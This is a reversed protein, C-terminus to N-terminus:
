VGFRLTSRIAVDLLMCTNRLSAYKLLILLVKRFARKAESTRHGGAGLGAYQQCDTTAADELPQLVVCNVGSINESIREM